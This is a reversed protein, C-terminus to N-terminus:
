TLAHYLDPGITMFMPPDTENAKEVRVEEM